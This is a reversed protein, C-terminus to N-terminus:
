VKQGQVDAAPLCEHFQSGVRIALSISLRQHTVSRSFGQIPRKRNQAEVGVVLGKGTKLQQDAVRRRIRRSEMGCPIPTPVLSSKPALVKELKTLDM